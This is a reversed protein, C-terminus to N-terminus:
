VLKNHVRNEAQRRDVQTRSSAVCSESLRLSFDVYNRRRHRLPFVFDRASVSDVSSATILRSFTSSTSSFSFTSPLLYVTSPPLSFSLTTSEQGIEKASSGLQENAHCTSPLPATCPTEIARAQNSEIQNEKSTSSLFPPRSEPRLIRFLDRTWFHDVLHGPCLPNLLGHLM